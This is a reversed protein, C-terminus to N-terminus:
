RYEIKARSRLDDLYQEVAEERLQQKLAAAIQNKVQDFDAITPPKRDYAKAIHFGFRTRFVESVQGPSLNFVVDDFEEVMEGRAIYGLNGGNDPCDSYKEVLMEFPTGQSIERRATNLIERAAADDTGAGTHKVIHAVRVTEPNTFHETHEDYFRRIEQPSPDPAESAVKEILKRVQIDLKIRQRIEADDDTGLAQHLQELGGCQQLVQQFDAEIQEDPVDPNAAAAQRRLLTMEIVNERSWDLLQQQRQDPPQDRFVKEYQPRLNEMEQEIVSDEIPEGDVFLTM